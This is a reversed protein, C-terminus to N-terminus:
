VGVCIGGAAAVYRGLLPMKVCPMRTCVRVEAVPSVLPVPHLRSLRDVQACYWCLHNAASCVSVCVCVCVKWCTQALALVLQDMHPPLHSPSQSAFQASHDTPAEGDEEACVPVCPHLGCCVHDSVCVCGSCSPLLLRKPPKTVLPHCSFRCQEVVVCVAVCEAWATSFDVDCSWM